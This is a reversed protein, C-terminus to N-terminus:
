ILVASPDYEAAFIFITSMPFCATPGNSNALYPTSLTFLSSVREGQPSGDDAVYTGFDENLLRYSSGDTPVFIANPL